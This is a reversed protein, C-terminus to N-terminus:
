FIWGGLAKLNAYWWIRVWVAIFMSWLVIAFLVAVTDHVRQQESSPTDLGAKRRDGSGAFGGPSHILRITLESLSDPDRPWLWHGAPEAYHRM